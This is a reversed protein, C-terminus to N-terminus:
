EPLLRPLVGHLDALYNGADNDVRKRQHLLPRDIVHTAARGHSSMQIRGRAKLYRGFRRWEGIAARGASRVCRTM